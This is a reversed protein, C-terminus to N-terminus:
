ASPNRRLDAKLLPRGETEPVLRIEVGYGLAEAVRALM